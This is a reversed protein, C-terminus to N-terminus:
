EPLVLKDYCMWLYFPHILYSFFNLFQHPFFKRFRSLVPYFKRNHIFRTTTRSFRGQGSHALSPIKLHLSIKDGSDLRCVILKGLRLPLHRIEHQVVGPPRQEHGDRVQRLAAAHPVGAHKPETFGQLQVSVLLKLHQQTQAEVLAPVLQVLKGPFIHRQVVGKLLHGLLHQVGVHLRQVLRIRQQIFLLKGFRHVQQIRCLGNIKEAHPATHQRRHLGHVLKQADFGLHAAQRIGVHLGHRGRNHPRLVHRHQEGVRPGGFVSDM